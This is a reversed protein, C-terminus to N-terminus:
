NELDDCVMRELFMRRAVDTLIEDLALDQSMIKYQKASLYEEPAWSAKHIGQAGLANTEQGDSKRTSGEHNVFPRIRQTLLSVDSFGLTETVLPGAYALWEMVLVLNFKSVTDLAVEMIEMRRQEEMSSEQTYTKKLGLTRPNAFTTTYVNKLDNRRPWWKEVNKEHCGRDEICEFRFQSLARDLPKRFSTTFTADLDFFRNPDFNDWENGVIRFDGLKSEIEKNTFKLLCGACKWNSWRYDPMCYYKAITEQPMNAKAMTCFQTGGAKRLHQFFMFSQYGDRFRQSKDADRFDPLTIRNGDTPCTFLSSIEDQTLIRGLSDEKELLKKEFTRVGFPDNEKLEILIQENSLKSLNLAIQKWDHYNNTKEMM